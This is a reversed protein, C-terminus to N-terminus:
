GSRSCMMGTCRASLVRGVAALAGWARGVRAQRSEGKGRYRRRCCRRVPEREWGGSFCVVRGLSACWRDRGWLGECLGHTGSCVRVTGNGSDGGGNQRRSDHQPHGGASREHSLSCGGCLLRPSTHLSPSPEGVGAGADTQEPLLRRVKVTIVATAWGTNWRHLLWGLPAALSSKLIYMGRFLACRELEDEDSDDCAEDVVVTEVAEDECVLPTAAAGGASAEVQAARFFGVLPNHGAVLVSGTTPIAFVRGWDRVEGLWPGEAVAAM